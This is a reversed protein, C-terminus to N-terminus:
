GCLCLTVVGMAEPERGEDREKGAAADGTALFLQQIGGGSRSIQGGNNGNPQCERHQGVTPASQGARRRPPLRRSFGAGPRSSQLVVGWRAAVLDVM